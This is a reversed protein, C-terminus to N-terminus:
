DAKMFFWPRSAASEDSTYLGAPVKMPIPMTTGFAEDFGPSEGQQRQRRHQDQPNGEDDEKGGRGMHTQARARELTQPGQDAGRRTGSDACGATRGVAVLVGCEWNRCSLKATGSERDKVLRGWASESLNASGMYAWVAGNCARERVFIAKSHLLLGKRTSECDRLLERPFTSSKWWKEQMCITGAASRGGRSSSVTKETPFYIRFHHHLDAAETTIPRSDSPGSRGAKGRTSKSQRAEYEKMGSDGQCANYIATLYGHNLSGLSSAVYDVDVPYDTALGLSRVTNGLGCYGTHQWSDNAHGGSITHVFGYRSTESFDYNDLSRVLKEGIGLATLFRRLEKGFLTETSAATQQTKELRPLDILFVMNELVGTEGWDYPVLNGSPVVLRLYGEYKLIQLKSHMYGGHMPPFCFRILGAPANSRIVAKEADNAAYAVLVMKTRQCDIKSLLWEEDWQFSSLVALQLQERQLVEEIKMDDGTRPYGRAWTRKFAGKAFPLDLANAANKQVKLNPAANSFALSDAADTRHSKPKQINEDLDAKTASRKRLRALREEEMKKRDLPLSGFTVGTTPQSSQKLPRAAANSAESRSDLTIDEQQLSLAIALALDSDDEADPSVSRAPNNGSSM